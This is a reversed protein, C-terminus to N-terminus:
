FEPCGDIRRKLSRDFQNEPTLLLWDGVTIPPMGPDLELGLSGAEGLLELRNRHQAIV